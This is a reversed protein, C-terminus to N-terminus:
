KHNTLIPLYVTFLAETDDITVDTNSLTSYRKTINKLGLETSPEVQLKPSKKNSIKIFNNEEIVDIKLHHKENFKNHKIANEFIIQLALPVIYQEKNKINVTAKITNNFRINNLFLFNEIFELEKSIPVVDEHQVDLVYRYIKAFHNIFLDSKEVDEYILGSLTNLTNFMFHPNMQSKLTDYQYKALEQKMDSVETYYEKLHKAFRNSLIILYITLGLVFETIMTAQGMSSNILQSFSINQTVTFWVSNVFMIVTAITIAVAIIVWIFNWTPNKEWEIRKFFLYSVFQCSFAISMGIIFGYTINLIINTINSDFGAFLFTCLISIALIILLNLSHKKTKGSKKM